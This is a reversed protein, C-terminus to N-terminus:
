PVWPERGAGFGLRVLGALTSSGTLFQDLLIQKELRCATFFWARPSVSNNLRPRDLSDLAVVRFPDPSTLSQRRLQSTFFRPSGPAVALFQGQPLM